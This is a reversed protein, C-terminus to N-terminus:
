LTITKSITLEGAYGRRRIEAFLQNDEFDTLSLSAKVGRQPVRKNQRPSKVTTKTTKSEM